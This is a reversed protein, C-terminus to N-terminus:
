FIRRPRFSEPLNQGAACVAKFFAAAKGLDKIGPASEVGSSVDVADPLASGVAAAVNGPTLGGALILPATRAVPRAAPWNWALANGGPLPGRGCEVLFASARYRAAEEMHPSKEAFLAKIVALGERHLDEVLTASEAGHLQVAKLGCARVTKRIAEADADVFVGVATVGAPLAAVIKCAQAETVHRPSKPYFVLGIAAAGLDACARAEDARTLGCIKVQPSRGARVGALSRLFATPDAARVLSEGILFNFIGGDLNASIDEPGAIGSAALAIQDEALLSKLRLAHGVDTEFTSLNRNNIGILRAGCRCALEIDEPSHVEVLADLMLQRCLQMFEFLQGASLTRAILLVADAGAAAAEYIQYTSVVFDKRLVPLCTAARALRLDDLSGKFFAADTLVSLCAAGGAEYARALDAPDLDLRIPGKSPSARKIEAIVNVGAPGPTALRRAFPRRPGALRAVDMLTSEPVRRHASEVEEIKHAVIRDLFDSAM